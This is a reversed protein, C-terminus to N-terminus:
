LLEGLNIMSQTSPEGESRGGLLPHRGMEEERVNFSTFAASSRSSWHLASPQPRFATCSLPSLLVSSPGVEMPTNKNQEKIRKYINNLMPVGLVSLEGKPNRKIGWLFPYGGGAHSSKDRGLLRGPQGKPEIQDM